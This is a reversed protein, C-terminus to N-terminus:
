SRSIFSSSIFYCQSVGLTDVKSLAIVNAQHVSTATGIFHFFVTQSFVSSSFITLLLTPFYYYLMLQALIYWCDHLVFKYFSRRIWAMHQANRIEYVMSVNKVWLCYLANPLVCQLWWWWWLRWIIENM